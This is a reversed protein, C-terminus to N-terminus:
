LVSRSSQKLLVICIDNIRKRVELLEKQENKASAEFRSSKQEEHFIDVKNAVSYNCAAFYSTCTAISQQDTPLM